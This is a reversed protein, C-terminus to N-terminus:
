ICSWTWPEAVLRWRGFSRVAIFTGQCGATRWSLLATRWLLPIYSISLFDDKQCAGVNVGGQRCIDNVPSRESFRRLRLDPNSASLTLLEEPLPDGEDFRLYLDGTYGSRIALHAEAVALWATERYDNGSGVVGAIRLAVIAAVVVLVTLGVILITRPANM